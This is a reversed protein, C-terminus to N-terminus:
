LKQFFKHTAEKCRESRTVCEFEDAAEDWVGEDIRATGDMVLNRFQLYKERWTIDKGTDQRSSAGVMKLINSYHNKLQAKYATSRALYLLSERLVSPPQEDIPTYDDINLGIYSYFPRSATTNLVPGRIFHRPEDGGQRVITLVDFNPVDTYPNEKSVKPMFGMCYFNHTRIRSGLEGLACGAGFETLLFANGPLPTMIHRGVAETEFRVRHQEYLRPLPWDLLDNIYHELNSALHDAYIDNM